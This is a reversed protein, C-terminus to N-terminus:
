QFSVLTVHELRDNPGVIARLRGLLRKREDLLQCLLATRRDRDHVDDLPDLPYSPDPHRVSGVLAPDIEVAMQQGPDVVPGIM